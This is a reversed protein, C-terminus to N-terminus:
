FTVKMKVTRNAMIVAKLRHQGDILREDVDFALGQHTAAWVGNVMDRAYAVVMDDKITRNGYNNKLWQWALAPTVDIWLDYPENTKKERAVPTGPKAVPALHTAMTTSTRAVVFKRITEASPLQTTM